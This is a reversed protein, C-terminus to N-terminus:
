TMIRRSASPGPMARQDSRIARAIPYIGADAKIQVAIVGILACGSCVRIRSWVGQGDDACRSRTRPHLRRPKGSGRDLSGSVRGMREVNNRAKRLPAYRCSLSQLRPSALVEAGSGNSHIPPQKPVTVAPQTLRFSPFRTRNGVLSHSVSMRSLAGDILRQRSGASIVRRQGEDSFGVALGPRLASTSRHRV